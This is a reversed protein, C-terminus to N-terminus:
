RDRRCLQRRAITMAPSTGAMWTEQRFRFVHIGPMFGPMVSFTLRQLDAGATRLLERPHPLGAHLEEAPLECTFHRADRHVAQGPEAAECLVEALGRDFRNRGM